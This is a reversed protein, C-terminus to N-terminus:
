QGNSTAPRKTLQINMISKKMTNQLFFNIHTLRRSKNILRTGLMQTAKLFRKIPKFLSRMSPMSAQYRNDASM